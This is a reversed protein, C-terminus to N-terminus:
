GLPFLLNNLGLYREPSFLVTDLEDIKVDNTDSCTLKSSILGAEALGASILTLILSIIFYYPTIKFCFFELINELRSYM